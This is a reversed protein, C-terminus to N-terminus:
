EEITFDASIAGGMEIREHTGIFIPPYNYSSPQPITWQYSGTNPTVAIPIFGNSDENSDSIGNSVSIEIEVPADKPLNTSTWTITVVEGVHWTEGGNPYTLTITPVGSINTQSPTPNTSEAITFEASISSYGVNGKYGGISITEHTGIFAGTSNTSNAPASTVTWQYSGTNSTMAIITTEGQAIGGSAVKWAIPLAIEVPADKSLNTSTWTITVVDGVHWTEGGNPYTLTITPVEYEYVKISFISKWWNSNNISATSYASYEDNSLNFDLTQITGVNIQPENWTINESQRLNGKEYLDVVYTTNTKANIPKLAVGLSQGVTNMGQIEAINSLAPPIVNAASNTTGCSVINLSFALIIFLVGIFIKKPM